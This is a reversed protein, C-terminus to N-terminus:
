EYADAWIHLKDKKMKVKKVVCRVIQRIYQEVYLGEKIEMIPSERKIEMNFKTGKRIIGKSTIPIAPTYAMHGEIHKGHFTFYTIAHQGAILRM